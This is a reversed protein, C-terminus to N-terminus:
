NGFQNDIHVHIRNGAGEHKACIMGDGNQDSVNGVLRHDTLDHDHHPATSHLTFGDPCGAEPPSAGAPGTVSIGTLTVLGAVVLKRAHRNMLRM